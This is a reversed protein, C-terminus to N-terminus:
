AVMFTNQLYLLVMNNGLVGYFVRLPM